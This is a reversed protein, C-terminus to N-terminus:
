AKRNINANSGTHRRENEARQRRMKDQGSRETEVAVDEERNDSDLCRTAFIAAQRLKSNSSTLLLALHRPTIYASLTKNNTHKELWEVVEEERGNRVAGRVGREWHQLTSEPDEQSKEKVFMAQMPFNGMSEFREKLLLDQFVGSHEIQLSEIFEHSFHKESLFLLIHHRTENSTAPNNLIIQKLIAPLSTAKALRDLIQADAGEDRALISAAAVVEKDVEQERTLHKIKFRNDLGLIGVLKQRDKKPLIYGKEMARELAERARRIRTSFRGMATGALPDHEPISTMGFRPRSYKNARREAAIAGFLEKLAYAGITELKKDTVHSNELIGVLGQDVCARLFEATLHKSSTVALEKDARTADNEIVRAIAYAYPDKDGLTYRAKLARLLLTKKIEKIKEFM